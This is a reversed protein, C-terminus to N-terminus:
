PDARRPDRALPDAVQAASVPRHIRRGFRVWAIAGDDHRLFEGRNNKLVGDTVHFEDEAHFAVPAPPSAPCPPSDPKPFGGEPIV